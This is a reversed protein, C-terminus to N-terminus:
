FTFGGPILRPGSLSRTRAHPSSRVPDLGTNSSLVVILSTVCAALGVALFSIGLIEYYNSTSELQSQAAVGYSSTGLADAASSATAEFLFLLAATAVFVSGVSALVAGAVRTGHSAPSVRLTVKPSGPALNFDKSPIIGDGMVRYIRHPDVRQDCPAKCVFEWSDVVEDHVIAKRTEKAYLGVRPDDTILSIAVGDPPPPPMAAPVLMAPPHAGTTSPTASETGRTEAPATSQAFATASYPMVILACVSRFLLLRRM